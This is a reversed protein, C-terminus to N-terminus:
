ASDFVAKGFIIAKGQNILTAFQIPQLSYSQATFYGRVLDQLEDSNDFLFSVRGNSRDAGTFSQPLMLRLFAQLHLDTTKYIKQNEMYTYMVHILM